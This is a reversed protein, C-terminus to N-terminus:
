DKKIKKVVEKTEKKNSTKTMSGCINCNKEKFKDKDEEAFIGDLIEEPIGQNVEITNEKSAM